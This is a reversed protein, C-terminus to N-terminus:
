ASMSISRRHNEVTDKRFRSQEDVREASDSNYSSNTVKRLNGFEGADEDGM